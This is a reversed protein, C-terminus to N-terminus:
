FFMSNEITCVEFLAQVVIGAGSSFDEKPQILDFDEEDELEERSLSLYPLLTEVFAQHLSKEEGEDEIKLIDLWVLQERDNDIVRPGGHLIIKRDSDKAILDAWFNFISGFCTQSLDPEQSIEIALDLNSTLYECSLEYLPVVVGGFHDYSDKVLMACLKFCLNGIEPEHNNFIEIASQTLTNFSDLDPRLNFSGIMQIYMELGIKIEDVFESHTCDLAVEMIRNSFTSLDSCNREVLAGLVIRSSKKMEQHDNESKCWSILNNLVSGEEGQFKFHCLIIRSFMTCLQNLNAGEQIDSNQM